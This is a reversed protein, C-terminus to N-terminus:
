IKSNFYKFTMLIQSNHCDPIWMAKQETARSKHLTSPEKWRKKIQTQTFCWLHGVERGERTNQEAQLSPTDETTQWTRTWLASEHKTYEITDARIYDRSFSRHLNVQSCRCLSYIAKGHCITSATSDNLISICIVLKFMVVLCASVTLQPLGTPCYPLWASPGTVNISVQYCSSLSLSRQHSKETLIM